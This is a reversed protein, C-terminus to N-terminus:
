GEATIGAAEAAAIAAKAEALLEARAPEAYGKLRRGGDTHKDIAAEHMAGHQPHGPDEWIVLARLAALMRGAVDSENLYWFGEAYREPVNAAGAFADGGEGTIASTGDVVGYVFAPSPDWSEMQTSLEGDDLMKIAKACADSYDDADVAVTARNDCDFYAVCVTYKPM